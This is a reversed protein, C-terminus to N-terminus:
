VHILYIPRLIAYLGIVLWLGRLCISFLNLKIMSQLPNIVPRMICIARKYAPWLVDPTQGLSKQCFEFFFQDCGAAKSYQVRRNSRALWRLEKTKGCQALWDSSPGGRTSLDGLQSPYSILVDDLQFETNVLPIGSFGFLWVFM